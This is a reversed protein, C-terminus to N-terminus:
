IDANHQFYKEKNVFKSGKIFQTTVASNVTFMSCVYLEKVAVYM